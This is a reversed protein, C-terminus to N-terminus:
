VDGGDGCQQIPFGLRKSADELDTYGELAKRLDETTAYGSALFVSAPVAQDGLEPILERLVAELEQEHRERDYEKSLKQGEVCVSLFDDLRRRLKSYSINSPWRGRDIFQDLVQRKLDEDLVSLVTMMAQYDRTDEELENPLGNAMKEVTFLYCFFTQVFFVCFHTYAEAGDDLEKLRDYLM